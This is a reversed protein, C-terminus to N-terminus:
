GSVIMALGTNPGGGGGRSTASPSPTPSLLGGVTNNRAAMVAGLYQIASASASAASSPATVRSSSAQLQRKRAVTTGPASTSAAVNEDTTPTAIDDSIITGAPADTATPSTDTAFESAPISYTSIVTAEASTANTANSPVNGVVSLSNSNLLAEIPVISQNLMVSNFQYASSSIGADSFITNM